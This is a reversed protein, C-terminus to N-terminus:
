SKVPYRLKNNVKFRADQVSSHILAEIDHPSYGRDVLRQMVVVLDNTVTAWVEIDLIEGCPGFMPKDFTM